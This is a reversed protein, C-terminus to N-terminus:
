ETGAIRQVLPRLMKKIDEKTQGCSWMSHADGYDQRMRLQGFIMAVRGNDIAVEAIVEGVIEAWEEEM